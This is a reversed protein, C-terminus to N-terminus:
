RVLTRLPLTARTFTVHTLSALHQVVPRGHQRTQM